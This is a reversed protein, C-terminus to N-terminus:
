YSRPLLRTIEPWERSIPHITIKLIHFLPIPQLFFLFNYFHSELRQAECIQWELRQCRLNPVGFL